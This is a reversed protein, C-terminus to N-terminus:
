MGSIYSLFTRGQQFKEDGRMINGAFYEAVKSPHWRLVVSNDELFLVIRDAHGMSKLSDAMPYRYEGDMLDQDLCAILRVHTFAAATPEFEILTEGTEYDCFMVKHQM